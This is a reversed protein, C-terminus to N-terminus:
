KVTMKLKGVEEESYKNKDQEQQWRGGRIFDEESHHSKFEAAEELTQEKM